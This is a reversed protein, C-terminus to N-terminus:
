KFLKRRKLGLSKPKSEIPKKEEKKILIIKKKPKLDLKAKPEESATPAKTLTSKPKLPTNNGEKNYLLKEVDRMYNYFEEVLKPDLNKREQERQAKVEAKLPRNYEMSGIARQMSAYDKYRYILTKIVEKIDEESFATSFCLHSDKLRVQWVGKTAEIVYLKESLM